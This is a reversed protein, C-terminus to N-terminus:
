LALMTIANLNEMDSQIMLGESSIIRERLLRLARRWRHNSTMPTGHFLIHNLQFLLLRFCSAMDSFSAPMLSTLPLKLVFLWLLSSLLQRNNSIGSALLKFKALAVLHVM